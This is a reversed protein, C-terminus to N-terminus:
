FLVIVVAGINDIEIEYVAGFGLVASFVRGGHPYRYVRNM